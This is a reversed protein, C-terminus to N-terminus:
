HLPNESPLSSSREDASDGGNDDTAGLPDDAFIDEAVIEDAGYVLRKTEEDLLRNAEIALSTNESSYRLFITKKNFSNEQWLLPLESLAPADELFNVFIEGLFDAMVHILELAKEEKRFELSAEFNDQRLQGPRAIGIRLLIEEPYIRGDVVFHGNELEYDAFFVEFVERIQETLEPPYSTWKKSTKLRPEM